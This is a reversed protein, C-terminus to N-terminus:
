HHHEGHHSCMVKKDELEGNLYQHLIEEITGKAGRIVKLGQKILADYAGQGIGGTIVLEVKEEALLSSLGGHNHQLSETSINKIDVVKNGEITAIAFTKSKGFHQNVVEQNKPMAIKM